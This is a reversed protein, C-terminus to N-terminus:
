GKLFPKIAVEVIPVGFPCPIHKVKRYHDVGLAKAQERRDMRDRPDYHLQAIKVFIYPSEFDACDPRYPAYGSVCCLCEHCQAMQRFAEPVVFREPEFLERDPIFLKYQRLKRFFERRDVVLDRVVPLKPLPRLVMEKKLKTLCAMRPKGDIEIACLGCTKYRCGMRFALTSDIKDYVHCLAELV